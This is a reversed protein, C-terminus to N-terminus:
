RRKVERRVVGNRLSDVNITNIIVDQGERMSMATAVAESTIANHITLQIVQGSGNEDATMVREGKHIKAVMDHPVYDIGSDFSPLNASSVSFNSFSSAAGVGTEAATTAGGSFIGAIGLMIKMAMWQAAIDFLMRIINRGFEAIMEQFSSLKFTLDYFTNSITDSLLNFTRKGTEELINFSEVMQTFWSKESAKMSDAAAKAADTAGTWLKDFGDGVVKLDATVNLKFDRTKEIQAQLSDVASHEMMKSNESFSNAIRLLTDRQDKFVEGVAPIQSFKDVFNAMALAAKALSYNVGEAFSYFVGKVLDFNQIAYALAAVAAAAQLFSVALGGAMAAMTTGAGAAAAALGPLTLLIAGTVSSFIGFAM